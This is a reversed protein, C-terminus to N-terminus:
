AQTGKLGTPAAPPVSVLLLKRLLASMAVSDPPSFLKVCIHRIQERQSTMCGGKLNTIRRNPRVLVYSM